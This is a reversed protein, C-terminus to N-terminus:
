GARQFFLPFGREDACAAHDIFESWGYGDRAITRVAKLAVPPDARNLREILRHWAVDLRLDKPKYVISAGDGFRVIHVSRGGNHPDSLDREIAVVRNDAGAPLLDRRIAPLDAALRNVFEGSTDLWQRALTALLRLLVPKDEFLRCFGDSQMGAVFQAYSSAGASRAKAFREYLAPASLASLDRLLGLSLCARAAPTLNHSAAEDLGSWLRQEARAVLPLFLEEFAVPEVRPQTIPTPARDQLAAQVWAADGIWAPPPAAPNPRTAAFRQRLRDITM